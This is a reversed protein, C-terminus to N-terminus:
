VEGETLQDRLRCMLPSADISTTPADFDVEFVFLGGPSDTIRCVGMETLIRTILHLKILGISVSPSRNIRLMLDKEEIVMHGLRAHDRLVTFVVAIEGRDPVLQESPSIPAGGLVEDRRKIDRKRAKALRESPRIDQLILQLSRVGQYDNINLQFLIDVM